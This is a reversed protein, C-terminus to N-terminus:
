GFLGKFRERDKLEQERELRKCEVIAKQANVLSSDLSFAREYNARADKYEKLMFFAQAMRYFAKVCEEDQKLIERCIGITDEYRCLNLNGALNHL